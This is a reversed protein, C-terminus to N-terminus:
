QLFQPPPYFINALNSLSFSVFQATLSNQQRICSSLNFQYFKGISINLYIRHSKYDVINLEVLKNLTEYLQKFADGANREINKELCYKLEVLCVWGKSSARSSVFMCECQDSGKLVAPNEEFNVAWYTTKRPNILHFSAIDDPDEEKICVKRKGATAQTYDMVYADGTMENYRTFAEIRM